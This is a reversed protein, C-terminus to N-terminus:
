ERIILATNGVRVVWEDGYEEHLESITEENGCFPEVKFIDFICEIWECLREESLNKLEDVYQDALAEVDDGEDEAYFFYDIFEGDSDLLDLRDNNWVISILDNKFLVKYNANM